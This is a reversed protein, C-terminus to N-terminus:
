NNLDPLAPLPPIAAAAESDPTLAAANGSGGLQISEAITNLHQSRIHIQPARLHLNGAADLQVMGQGQTMTIAAQSQLKIGHSAHLNLHGQAVQLQLNGHTVDLQSAHKSEMRIESESKLSLQDTTTQLIIDQTSAKLKLDRGAQYAIHQANTQLQYHGQVKIHHEHGAHNIHLQQTHQQYTKHAALQVDGECSHLSIRHQDRGADLELFNNKGQTALTIKQKQKRDEFLLYQGSRTQLLHQTANRQTIPSRQRANPLSACLLPRNSDGNIFGVLVESGSSLPFHYGFGSGSHPQALRLYPNNDRSSDEAEFYFRIPYSGQEDLPIDAANASDIMAPLYAQVAASSQHPRYDYNAPMLELQNHYRLGKSTEGHLRGANGARQDGCHQISLIHYDGAHHTNGHIRILQGPELNAATTWATLRHRMSDLAHQRSELLAAGEEPEPYNTGYRYDTGYAPITSNTASQLRLDLHPADPNYDNFFINEALLRYQSQLAYIYKENAVEGSGPVYTLSRVDSAQPLTDRICLRVSDADQVFIFFLGWYCLQQQLFFLDNQQYQMVFERRPYDKILSLQYDCEANLLLTECIEGITKNRYVQSHCGLSLPFLPSRLTLNNDSVKTIYGHFYCTTIECHFCFIARQGLLDAPEYQLRDHIQLVFCYDENLAHQEAVFHNLAFNTASIAPIRLFFQSTDYRESHQSEDM